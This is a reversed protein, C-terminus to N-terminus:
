MPVLEKMQQGQVKTADIRDALRSFGKTIVTPVEEGLSQTFQSSVTRLMKPVSEFSKEALFLSAASLEGMINDIINELADVSPEEPLDVGNDKFMTHLALVFAMADVGADLADSSAESADDDVADVEDMYKEYELM